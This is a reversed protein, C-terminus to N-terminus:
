KGNDGEVLHATVYRAVTEADEEPMLERVACNRGTAPHMFHWRLYTKRGRKITEIDFPEISLRM